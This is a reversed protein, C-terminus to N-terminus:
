DAGSRTRGNRVGSAIAERSEAIARPAGARQRPASPSFLIAPGRFGHGRRSGGSASRARPITVRRHFRLRWGHRATREKVRDVDRARRLCGGSIATDAPWYTPRAGFDHTKSTSSPRFPRARYRVQGVTRGVAFTATRSRHRTGRREDKDPGRMARKRRLEKSKPWADSGARPEGSTSPPLAYGRLGPADFKSPRSSRDAHATAAHSEDRVPADGPSSAAPVEFIIEQTYAHRRSLDRESYMAGNLGTPAPSPPSTAEFRETEEGPLNVNSEYEDNSEAGDVGVRKREREEGGEEGWWGQAAGLRISSQAEHFASAAAGGAPIFALEPDQFPALAGNM